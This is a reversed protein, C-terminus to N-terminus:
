IPYRPVITDRIGGTASRRLIFGRAAATDEYQGTEGEDLWGDAFPRMTRGETNNTMPIDGLSTGDERYLLMRRARVDWLAITDGRVLAWRVGRYEGPGQGSRGLMRPAAGMSDFVVVRTGGDVVVIGGSPTFAVDHVERFVSEKNTEDHGIRVEPTTVRVTDRAAGLNRVITIGASDATVVSDSGAGDGCAGLVVTAGFAAAAM